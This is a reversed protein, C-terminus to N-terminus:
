KVPFEVENWNLSESKLSFKHKIYLLNYIFCYNQFNKQFGNGLNEVNKWKKISKKRASILM